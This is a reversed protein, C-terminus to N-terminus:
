LMASNPAYIKLLRDVVNKVDFNQLRSNQWALALQVFKPNKLTSSIKRALEAPNHPDFLSEDRGSLTSRYGPNDGGLVLAGAAMAETLVIGFSEGGSSPFVAVQSEALIRPKDSESIFGLFKVPLHLNRARQELRSRLSGDGAIVIRANPPWLNNKLAFEAADLLLEPNKREVLRGLFLIQGPKTQFERAAIQFRKLDVPNPIVDSPRTKFIKEAFDAAVSSVAVTQNFKKLTRRNLIRLIRGGFSVIRSAPAIHWTGVIRTGRPALKIIRGALFPSYPMQIHLVDFKEKALLNKLASRRAPLPMRMKNQNFKVQINKSLSHLNPLDRRATQGALYHVDFGRRSLEAGIALVYQQVGDPADLGDDLVLGIKM